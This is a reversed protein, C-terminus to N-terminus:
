RCDVSSCGATRKMLKMEATKLRRLGGQLLTWMDFGYLLSPIALISEIWIAKPNCKPKLVNNMIDFVELFKSIKSAIHNNKEYSIKCELYTFVNVQEL